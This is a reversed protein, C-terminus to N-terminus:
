TAPNQFYPKWNENKRNHINILVFIVRQKLFPINKFHRIKVNKENESLINIKVYM